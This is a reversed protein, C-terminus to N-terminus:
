FCCPIFHSLQHKNGSAHWKSLWASSVNSLPPARVMETLFKKCREALQEKDVDDDFEIKYRECVRKLSKESLRRFNMPRRRAPTPQRAPQQPGGASLGYPNQQGYPNSQGYTYANQSPQGYPQGYGQHQQHQQHLQQHPPQHPQAYQQHPKPGPRNTTPKAGKAKLGAKAAGPRQQGPKGPQKAGKMGLKGPAGKAAPKVGTKGPKGPKGAPKGPKMGPVSRNPKKGPPGKTDAAANKRKRGADRKM